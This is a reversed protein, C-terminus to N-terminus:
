SIMRGIICKMFHRCVKTDIMFPPTLEIKSEDLLKIVENMMFEGALPTKVIALYYISISNSYHGILILYICHKNEKQLQLGKCVSLQKLFM